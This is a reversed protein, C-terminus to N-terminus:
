ITIHAVHECKKCSFLLSFFHKNMKKERLWGSNDALEPNALGVLKETNLSDPDWGSWNARGPIRMIIRYCVSVFNELGGFPADAFGFLHHEKIPQCMYIFGILYLIVNTGSSTFIM